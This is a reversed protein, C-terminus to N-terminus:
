LLFPLESAVECFRENLKVAKGGNGIFERESIGQHARRLENGIVVAECTGTM